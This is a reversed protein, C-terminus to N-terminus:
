CLADCPALALDTIDQNAEHTPDVAVTFVGDIREYAGAAGFSRGEAFPTRSIVDVGIVAM